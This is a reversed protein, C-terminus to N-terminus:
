SQSTKDGIEGMKTERVTQSERKRFDAPRGIDGRSEGGGGTTRAKFSKGLIGSDRIVQEM